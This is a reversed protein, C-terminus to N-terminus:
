PKLSLNYITGVAKVLIELKKIGYYNGYRLIRYNKMNAFIHEIKVGKFEMPWPNNKNRSNISFFLVETKDWKQLFHFM